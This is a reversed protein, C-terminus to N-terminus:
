ILGWFIVYKCYNKAMCNDWSSFTNKVDSIKDGTDTFINRKVMEAVISSALSERVTGLLGGHLSRVMAVDVSPM